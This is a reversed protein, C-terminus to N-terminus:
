NPPQTSWWIILEQENKPVPCEAHGSSILHLRQIVYQVANRIQPSPKREESELIIEELANKWDVEPNARRWSAIASRLPWM